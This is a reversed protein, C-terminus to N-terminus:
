ETAIARLVDLRAARRSPFLAALVGILVSLALFWGVQDWPVSIVELGEDRIAYMLAVGFGIGLAVGLLAGLLSIVVSELTIMFRLQARSVGIARLLGVERTREIISLALTNVIGLVAIVLALGLLAFIMLVLQDIPGRQEEAFEAENKVTVVPIDAVVEDLRNQLGVQEGGSMIILANDGTAFGAEELASITTLVPFFIIPNEEYTGVVEFTTDGAPLEWTMTDGVALGQEDAWEDSVLVSDDALDDFSGSAAVLEMEDLTGPDVGALGEDDGEWTAMAFRERIVQDVGEVEAMERAISPSFPQGFVNSVIYDGVFNEEVSKDVSAKASDGVIAMTCALALGIMLASATATTRRPNRLSNQGALNGISGFSRAYLARALLLFPRAIVPAAASVGLLIALVGAGVFWGPRPVSAFLGSGLAVVGAVVLSFGVVLRRHVSAEPMAVDDRLAQVPAIRGTRRAPLWAAVMTVVVGVVYAAVVTRPAFILSQGSLDLGFNGFLTRIGMALLVGLGLGLTSGVLGVVFAELLVSRTVQRKSAGLARLLALERSRQAVLISFTNVILFAGVVLSIGAFILLFTTLFSIAEVLATAAEDAAEDGTVAEVGEPLREAVADRLQEQSTGPEATVWLDSYANRGDLFLDQATATDFLALTAGNLSGGDAFDALGVLEPQLVAQDSATVIRVRDGVQYDAKAATKADLVVERPGSPEQGRVISLGELGNGAPADNWNGGIAPPGFGGVVKNDRDVVYVGVAAVNGDVRAAGPVSGLDDVLRAPVTRTTPMGEATTGGEPRVV